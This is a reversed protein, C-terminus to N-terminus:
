MSASTKPMPNWYAAIRPMSRVSPRPVARRRAALASMSDSVAHCAPMYPQIATAIKPSLPPMGSGRVENTNQNIICIAMAHPNM